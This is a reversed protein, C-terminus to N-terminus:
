ASPPELLPENARSLLATCPAAIVPAAECAMPGIRLAADGVWANPCHHHALGDEGQEDQDSNQHSGTADHNHSAHVADRDGAAMAHAPEASHLTAGMMAFILALLILARQTTKGAIM